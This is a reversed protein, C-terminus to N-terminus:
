KFIHHNRRPRSDRCNIKIFKGLAKAPLPRKLPNQGSTYAPFSHLKKTKKEVFFSVKFFNFNYYKALDTQRQSHSRRQSNWLKEHEQSEWHECAILQNGGFIGFYAFASSYHSATPEAEGNGFNYRCWLFLTM